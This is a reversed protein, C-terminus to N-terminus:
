RSVGRAVTGVSWSTSCLMGRRIGASGPSRADYRGHTDCLSSDRRLVNKTRRTMAAGVPAADMRRVPHTRKLVEALELSAGNCPSCVGALTKM